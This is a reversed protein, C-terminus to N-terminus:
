TAIRRLPAAQTPSPNSRSSGTILIGDIQDLDPYEQKEVVDYTSLALASDPWGLRHAAALLLVKFVGGYGGFAERTQRLPTDAELIAIRLPTAPASSTAM